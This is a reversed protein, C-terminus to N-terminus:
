AAGPETEAEDAQIIIVPAIQQLPAGDKGTVEVEAKESWRARTKLWFIMATTNGEMCQQYLKGAVQANAEIVATKLETDYLKYLTDASMGVTKAIDDAPVGVAAMGRIRKALEESRKVAPRGVKGTM